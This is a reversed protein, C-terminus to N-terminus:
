KGRAIEENEKRKVEKGERNGHTKLELELFRIVKRVQEKGGEM